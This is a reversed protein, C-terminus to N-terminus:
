AFYHGLFPRPQVERDGGIGLEQALARRDLVEQMRVADDDAGVISACGGQKFLKIRRERPALRGQEDGVRCIGLQDFVRRVREKRELDAKDIIDRVKAFLDAALDLRYGPSHPEVAADARAEQRGAWAEASGAKRLIRSGKHRRPALV